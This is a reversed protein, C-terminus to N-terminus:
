LGKGFWFYSNPRWEPGSVLNTSCLLYEDMCLGLSLVKWPVSCIHIFWDFKSPGPKEANSLYTSRLKLKKKESSGAELAPTHFRRTHRRLASDYQM